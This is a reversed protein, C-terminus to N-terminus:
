EKRKRRTMLMVKSKEENYRIKNDTTWETIKNLEVNAINEAEGISEAKIMIILDDAVAVVKSHNTYKLNLLPNYQINWFGPGCCSAQPCGKTISKEINFSNITIVSKREKLYDQALHYLNQPCKADRLGKLIAPWCASDFSGRVDLSAMIVVRGRELQPEIYQRAEMAADKTSKQPTFGYQNDNLFETKYLHHM